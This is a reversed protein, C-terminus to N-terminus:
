HVEGTVVGGNNPDAILMVTFQLPPEVVFNAVLTRNGTMVFQYSAGAGPVIVGGETWNAFDYGDAATATVTRTTGTDFTGAGGTTGGLLPSSSLAITFQVPVYNAVLTRDNAIVFQYTATAGPVIVGGETWNAFTFGANPTATVTVLSGENFLGAGTTVGGLVPNSSVIVAFQTPPILSYNAVLTRNGALVFQYTATAGPVIVVGETWNDFAYGANPVATVIVTTGEVFTGGGATVGGIIPNSLVGVAFTKLTTFAL